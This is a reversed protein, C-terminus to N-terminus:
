SRRNRSIVLGIVLGFLTAAVWFWFGRGAAVRLMKQGTTEPTAVTPSEAPPTEWERLARGVEERRSPGQSKGNRRPM